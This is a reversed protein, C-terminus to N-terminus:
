RRGVQVAVEDVVGLVRARGLDLLAADPHQGVQEMGWALRRTRTRLSRGLRDHEAAQRQLPVPALAALRRSLRRRIGVQDEAAVDMDHPLLEAPVEVDLRPDDRQLGALVRDARIVDLRVDVLVRDADRGHEPRREGTVLVVDDPDVVQQDPDLVLAAEVHRQVDVPRTAAEDPREEVRVRLPVEPELLHSRDVHGPVLEAQDIGPM